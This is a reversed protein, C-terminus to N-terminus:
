KLKVSRLEGPSCWNYVFPAYGVREPVSVETQPSAILTSRPGQRTPPQGANSLVTGLPKARASSPLPRIGPFDLFLLAWLERTATAEGSAPSHSFGGTERRTSGSVVAESVETNAESVAAQERGGWSVQLVGLGVVGEGAVALQLHAPGLVEQATSEIVRVDVAGVRWDGTGDRRWGGQNGMTGWKGDLSPFSITAHVGRSYQLLLEPSQFAGRSNQKKANRVWSEEYSELQLKHFFDTTKEMGLQVGLWQSWLVAYYNLFDEKSVSRGTSTPFDISNALLLALLSACDELGLSASGTQTSVPHCTGVTSLVACGRIPAM